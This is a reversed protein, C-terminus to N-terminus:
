VTMRSLELQAALRRVTWHTADASRTKLTADLINQETGATLVPRARQRKHRHTLAAVGGQVFASRVALITPRSMGTRRAIASNSLGEGALLIVRCKRAVIQTTTGAQTLAKWTGESNLLSWLRM